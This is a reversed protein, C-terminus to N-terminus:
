DEKQSAGNRNFACGIKDLSEGRVFAEAAKAASEIAPAMLERAEKGRESLVYDTIGMIEEKPKIGIRVRAFETTGLKEVINRMGNHTGASGHPRIRLSGLPLDYDDYMVLINELPIKYFNVLESVSEGSLNMYTQPKALIVKQGRYFGEAVLAKASKKSFSLEFIDAAEDVGAFGSNHFTNVYRLGPNGLGVILYM